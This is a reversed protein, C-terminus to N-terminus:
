AKPTKDLPLEEQKEVPPGPQKKNKRKKFKAKTEEPLNELEEPLEIEAMAAENQEKAIRHHLLDMTTDDYGYRPQRGQRIQMGRAASQIMKNIDCSAAHEKETLSEGEVLTSFPPTKYMVAM